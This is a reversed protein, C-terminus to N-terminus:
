LKESLLKKLVETLSQDSPRPAQADIIKGERDLLVFRPISKINLNKYFMDHHEQDAWLQIGKMDNELVFDKWKLTDKESDISISIFKLDRDKFEEQLEELYPIEKICPKCWTAWFDIYIINGKFDSLKHINGNADILSFDPGPSGELMGELHGYKERVLNAIDPYPCSEDFQDYLEKRFDRDLSYALYIYGLREPLQDTAYDYFDGESSTGNSSIEYKKRLVSNLFYYSGIGGHDIDVALSLTDLFDYYGEPLEPYQGNNFGAHSAPYSIIRQIMEHEYQDKYLRILDESLKNNSNFDGIFQIKDSYLGKKAKKYNDPNLYTIYYYNNLYKSKYDNFKWEERNIFYNNAAGRGSFDLSQEINNADVKMYISDGPSLYLHVMRFDVSGVQMSSDTGDVMSVNFRYTKPVKGFSLFGKLPNNMDLILKFRGSSDVDIDLTRSSALLSYENFSFELTTDAIGTIQGSLYVRNTTLGTKNQTCSTIAFSLILIFIYHTKM